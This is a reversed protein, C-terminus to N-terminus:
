YTVRHASGDSAGYFMQKCDSTLVPYSVSLNATNPLQRAPSAFPMEISDREVYFARILNSGIQGKFVLRRGEETLHAEGLFKVQTNAPDVFSPNTNTVLEWTTPSTHDTEELEIYNSSKSLVMHRPTVKTPASPEYGAPNVTNPLNISALGGWGVLGPSRLGFVISTTNNAVIRFRMFMQDGEPAISPVGYEFDATSEFNVQYGASFSPDLTTLIQRRAIGGTDLTLQTRIAVSESPVRPHLSESAVNLQIDTQLVAPAVCLPTMTSGDPDLDGGDTSGDVLLGGDGDFCTTVGPEAQCRGDVCALGGPCSDICTVACLPISAPSYCGAVLAVVLWRMVAM